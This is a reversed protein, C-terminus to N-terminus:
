EFVYGRPHSMTEATGVEVVEGARICGLERAIPELDVYGEVTGTTHNILAYQGPPRIAVSSHHFIRGLIRGSKVLARGVRLELPRRKVTATTPHTTTM